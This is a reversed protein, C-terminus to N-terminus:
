RAMKTVVAGDQLGKLVAPPLFTSDIFPYRSCRTLDAVVDLQDSCGQEQFMEQPDDPILKGLSFWDDM